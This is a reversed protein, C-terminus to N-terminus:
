GVRAIARVRGPGLGLKRCDDIFTRKVAKSDDITKYFEDYYKLADDRMKPDLDQQTRYLNYIADRQDDFLKLTPALEEATRCYGRYLRDRVSRIGLREDPRAYPADVVGSWDFDYPVALPWLRQPRLVLVINHLAWVSWDTNGVFYEFMWVLAIQSSDTADDVVHTRPFVKGGLRNAMRGDEELFFAYRSLSDRKGASDVYTFRALRVRFSNETLLNFARYILYEQLVDQEYRERKDQCHVTLKLKSQGAFLTHKVEGKPFALHLPPFNCTEKRLRFNGRTKVQVHLMVPAGASDAYSLTAPHWTSQQGREKFVAGFDAQLRFTLVDHSAFLRAEPPPTTASATGQQAAGTAPLGLSLALAALFPSPRM